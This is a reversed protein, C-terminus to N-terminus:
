NIWMSTLIYQKAAACCSCMYCDPISVSLGATSSNM